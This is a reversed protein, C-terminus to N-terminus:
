ILGRVTGRALDRVFWGAIEPRTHVTRLRYPLWARGCPIYVRIPVNLTKALRMAPRRPWGYLVELECATGAAILRHMCHMALSMNHTAICVLKAKGCLREVVDCFGRAPDMEPFMPDIWEGKVVRVRVGLSSAFEADRLSRRWRGPLTCGLSRCLPATRSIAAFVADSGELALSDFHLGVNQEHARDVIRSLLLDDGGLAPLKISVYNEKSRDAGGRLADALKLYETCVGAPSENLDNWYSLTCAIDRTELRRALRLADNATPGSSYSKAALDTFFM